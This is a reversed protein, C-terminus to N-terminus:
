SHGHIFTVNKPPLTFVCFVSCNRDRGLPTYNCHTGQIPPDGCGLGCAAKSHAPSGSSPTPTPLAELRGSVTSPAPDPGPHLRDTPPTTPPYSTQSCKVTSEDHVRIVTRAELSASPSDSAPLRACPSAMFSSSPPHEESLM